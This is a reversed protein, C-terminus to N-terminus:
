IGDAYVCALPLRNIPAAMKSECYTVLERGEMQPASMTFPLPEPLEIVDPDRRYGMARDTAGAGKGAIRPVAIVEIGPNNNLFFELITVDSTSSRAKTKILNHQAIPLIITDIYENDNTLTRVTSVIRNLDVLIEDPSKNGAGTGSGNGWTTGTTAGAVVTFTTVSPLAFMGVLGNATDGLLAIREFLQDMSKRAANAKMTSLPRKAFAASRMEDVSVGFSAGLGKIPAYEERIFVDVRPFDKAYDQVIKAVGVSDLIQYAITKAGPDDENNVPMLVRAQYPGRKVEYLKARLSLLQREVFVSEASDAKVGIAEAVADTVFKRKM